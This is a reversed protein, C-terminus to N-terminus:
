LPTHAHPAAPPPRHQAARMAAGILSPAGAPPVRGAGWACGALKSYSSLSHSMPMPSRIMSRSASMSFVSSAPPMAARASGSACRVASLIFILRVLGPVLLESALCSITLDLSVFPSGFGCAGVVATGGAAALRPEPPCRRSLALSLCWWGCGGCSTLPTALTGGGGFAGPGGAAGEGADNGAPLVVVGVTGLGSCLGAAAGRSSALGIAGVGDGCDAAVAGAGGGAGAGGACRGWGGGGELGSGSSELCSFWFMCGGALFCFVSGLTFICLYLYRRITM